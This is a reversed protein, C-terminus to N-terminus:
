ENINGYFVPNIQKENSELAIKQEIDEGFNRFKNRLVEKRDEPSLYLTRNIAHMFPLIEIQAAAMVGGGHDKSFIFAHLIEHSLVYVDNRKLLIFRRHANDIVGMWSPIPVFVSLAAIFVDKAPVPALGIMIDYDESSIHRTKRLMENLAKNHNRSELIGADNMSVINLGLGTQTILNDSTQQILERLEAETRGDFVVAVVRLQRIPLNEKQFEPDNIQSKITGYSACSSLGALLLLFLVKALIKNM